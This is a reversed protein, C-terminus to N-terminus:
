PFTDWFTNVASPMNEHLKSRKRDPLNYAEALGFFIFHVFFMVHLYRVASKCQRGCVSMGVLNVVGITFEFVSAESIANPLRFDNTYTTHNESTDTGVIVM